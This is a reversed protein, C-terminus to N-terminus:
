AAARAPQVYELGQRLKLLIKGLIQSIRADSLNLLGGIERLTLQEVYYLGLITQEREPLAPILKELAGLASRREVAEFGEEADEDPVVDLLTQDGDDGLPRDVSLSFRHQAEVLLDHYEPLSMGLYDAVDQDTPEEGLMQHLDEIARQVEHIKQRKQRSLVDISRLYDVVAGRIRLYAHTVFQTGQAPDYTDLAQLLGELASGELDDWSALPHNPVTLRGLISRVLPLSALVVAERHAPTPAAVYRDITDQLSDAM